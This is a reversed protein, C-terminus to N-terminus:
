EAPGTGSMEPVNEGYLFHPPHLELQRTCSMENLTTDVPWSNVQFHHVNV